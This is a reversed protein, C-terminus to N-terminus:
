RLKQDPGAKAPEEEELFKAVAVLLRAVALLLPVGGALVAGALTGVGNCILDTWSSDRTPVWGQGLEIVLSVACGALVAGSAAALWPWHRRRKLWRALFFGYPIFGLVNVAMDLKGQRLFDARALFPKLERLRAPLVLAPGAGALNSIVQGSGTRLDYLALTAEAPGPPPPGAQMWHQYRQQIQEATLACNHLGLGLVAGAWPDTARPSNGVFIRKGVLTDTPALLRIGQWQRVRRGNLYLTTGNTDATYTLFTSRGVALANRTDLERFQPQAAPDEQRVWLIVEQRWQGIFFLEVGDASWVSVIRGRAGHPEEAPRVWLEITMAGPQCQTGPLGVLSGETHALGGLSFKPRDRGSPFYLGPSTSRWVACNPSSVRLPWLGVALVAV